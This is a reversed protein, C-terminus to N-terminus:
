PVRPVRVRLSGPLSSFVLPAALVVLEGDVAVEVSRGRPEVTLRETVVKALEPVEEAGAALARLTTWLLRLPGMGGGYFASLRAQDLRRRRGPEQSSFRYENNGVFVFPTRVREENADWRVRLRELRFARLVNLVAYAMAAAKGLGLRRQHRTRRKVARPYLGLSVNNVFARGNVCGLDVRREEGALLAPVAQELELPVGLDRAFNNRTGLPLVGLATRTGRLARAATAVSGDGGGVFVVAHREAVRRRLEDELEGPAHMSLAVRAGAAEFARRVRACLEHEGGGVACGASGNLLVPVPESGPSTGATADAGVGAGPARAAPADGSPALRRAFADM